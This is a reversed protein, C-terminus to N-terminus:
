NTAQSYGSFFNTFLSTPPDNLRRSDIKIDNKTPALTMTIARRTSIDTVMLPLKESPVHLM